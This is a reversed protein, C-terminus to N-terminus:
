AQYNSATIITGDRSQGILKINSTTIEIQESYTGNKIQITDGSKAANIASQITKYSGSGDKAVVLAAAKVQNMFTMCSIVEFIMGVILGVSIMRIRSM